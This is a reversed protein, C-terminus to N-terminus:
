DTDYVELSVRQRLEVQLIGAFKSSFGSEYPAIPLPCGAYWGLPMVSLLHGLYGSM